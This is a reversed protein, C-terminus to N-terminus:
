AGSAFTFLGLWIFVGDHEVPEGLGRPACFDCRSTHCESCYPFCYCLEDICLRACRMSRGQRQVRATCPAHNLVDLPRAAPSSAVFSRLEDVVTDDGEISKIGAVSLLMLKGTPEASLAAVVGRATLASCNRVCLSKLGGAARKVCHLLQNNTVSAPRALRNGHGNGRRFRPAPASRDSFDLDSWLTKDSAAARWSSCVGAAACVAKFKAGTVDALLISYINRLVNPHLPASFPKKRVERKAMKTETTEAKQPLASLASATKEAKNKAAEIAHKKAEDKASEIAQKKAERKAAAEKRGMALATKKAEKRAADKVIIKKLAAERREAQKEAAVKRAQQAAMHKASLAAGLAQGNYTCAMPVSAGVIFRIKSKSKVVQVRTSKFKSPKKLASTHVRIRRTDSRLHM